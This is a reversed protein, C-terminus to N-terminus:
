SWPTVPRARTRGDLVLDLREDFFAVLGAVESAEHLPDEYAWVLDAVIHGDVEPSWYTAEGKYACYTNTSSPHLTASVDERPLYYRVPLMTEFLLHPRNSEALVHGDLEIRVTRSSRLVDIRHFPDRPHSVIPEDEEHWADFGAFDLIVHGSLDPDTPRFGNAPTSADGARVSVPEGGTTHVEFPIRPDLVPLKSVDPVHFGTAAGETPAAAPAPVIDGQVDEVPVAYSAVVRRPEWVLMARTSDVVTQDSLTARVRKETPEHRLEGLHDMLADRM